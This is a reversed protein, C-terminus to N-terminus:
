MQAADCWCQACCCPHKTQDQSFGAFLDQQPQKCADLKKIASPFSNQLSWMTRPEFEKLPPEFYQTHVEKLLHKPLATEGEVFARYILLKAENDPLSHNQWVNIKETIPKWHRQMKDVAGGIIEVHDAYKTHKRM